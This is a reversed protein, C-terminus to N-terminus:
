IRHYIGRARRSKAVFRNTAMVVLRYVYGAVFFCGMMGGIYGVTFAGKYLGIGHLADPLYHVLMAWLVTALVAYVCKAYAIGRRVRIDDTRRSPVIPIQDDL